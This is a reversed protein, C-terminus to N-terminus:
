RGGRGRGGQGGPGGEGGPRRFETRQFEFPDGVMEKFKAQQQPTLLKLLEEQAEKQLEAIKQRLENQLKENAARLKEQQSETIGLEEVLPGGALARGAGGRLRLQFALQKARKTQHPLLIKGVEKEIETQAKQMLERMKAFREERDEIDRLGSFMEGMRGRQGEALKQLDAIQEDVLELEKRADERMLVGVLGGGGFGGGFFGGPGGRGGPGGGRGRGGPQAALATTICVSVVCVVALATVMLKRSVMMLWEKLTVPAL